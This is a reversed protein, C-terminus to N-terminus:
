PKVVLDAIDICNEKIRRLSNAIENLYFAMTSPQELIRQNLQEMLSQAKSGLERKVYNEAHKTDLKFLATLAEEQIKRVIDSLNLLGEIVDGPAEYPKLAMASKAITVAQDGNSELARAVLRYDLCEVLSIGAKESLRPNQVIARLQRVILFYLRNLDDDRKVVSQALDEDKDRFATIADIHMQLALIHARRLLTKIPIALPSLLCQVIIENSKEEIIETGVLATLTNKIKERQELTIRRPAKIHIIDAGILYKGLIERGVNEDLEVVAVNPKEVEEVSGSKIIISGDSEEMLMITAGGRLGMRTVWGKPLSVLYSGSKTEQLKRYEVNSM